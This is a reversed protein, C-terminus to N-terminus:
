CVLFLLWLPSAVYGMIGMLLHLRNVPRFGRAHAALQAAPQGPVLPPRAQRQRDADAAGGRLQRRSRVRAVGGLRGQADAGGRRFRPQPHARRVARQGAARAACCHDMFPQVRIIANHGWYNGEHQQWYNLGALFLPSYLRNAFQQM